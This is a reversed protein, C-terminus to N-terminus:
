IMKRNTSRRRCRATDNPPKVSTRRYSKKCLAKWRKISKAQKSELEITKKMLSKLNIGFTLLRMLKSKIKSKSYKFTKLMELMKSKM